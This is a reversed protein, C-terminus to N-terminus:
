LQQEDMLENLKAAVEPFRADDINKPAQIQQLPQVNSQTLALYGMVMMYIAVATYIVWVNYSQIPVLWQSVAVFWIIVQFYAMVDIWLLAIGDTNSQQQYLTRRYKKISVLGAVVYSVSYLYLTLEFSVWGRPGNEWPNVIWHLNVGAMFVFGFFHVMDPWSISKKLTITRVYLYFFSGYVFPLFHALTYAPLFRTTPNNIYITKVTLDFVLCLMWVSLVRNSRKNVQKVWLAIALVLGQAAGMAFIYTFNM